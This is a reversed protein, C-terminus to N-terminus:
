VLNEEDAADSTYLLCGQDDAEESSAVTVPNLRMYESVFMFVSVAAMGVLLVVVSWTNLVLATYHFLYLVFLIGTLNYWVWRVWKNHWIMM